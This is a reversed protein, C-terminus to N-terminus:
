KKFVYVAGANSASNDGSATAGTTITTQNSDEGASGVVITDGSIAVASGFNDDIEVNPAKLYADHAWQEGTRKFIYTAGSDIADNNSSASTGNTITTQNSDEYPAGVVVTDGFIAVEKGFNDSPDANPAKLYAEYAWVSGTRKFVYAAGSNSLSNDASATSGNTITIQSSSENKAGAVITDGYLAVSNGLADLTNANPAKLYAEQAWTIGSRKFVYVAGSFSASNNLSASAGNTITIQNSAEAEAGVAITDRSIAVSSGFFDMSGANPAKIYAEQAWLTGTRKFVYVAGAFSLSNDGSGTAGNTISTQNSQEQHAGVVVTDGSIAVSNGFYDMPNANPAKIYAEQAWLTGTRKFVYVAGSSMSLNNASATTGNTITTQNSSEGFAGVVITDGAIAVASGFLDSADANPAKLYAEQVWSVGSRKFVYAAGASLNSNDSSATTGNTITTQSSNENRAGVVLTDGDLAISGGLVLGGFGDGAEANAAKIYAQQAYNPTQDLKYIYAAGSSPASNDSSSTTGNTITTQNSSENHASIVATAGSIAVALGFNDSGDANSAKIYAEQVWSLGTRRFVYVAGSIGKSNDSSATAGNTITTQNSSESHAGVIIVDEFVGVSYGFSDGTGSNPAKLYAEQTWNTGARKFVYAAGSSAASNDASATTGNTITTQNSDESHAGVVITDNSINVSFGFNDSSQSNPAKLYAEQAWSGGTRKFVYAAGSSAASNDASATTGNTITTQSSGENNAGVVVTDRSIAVSRGFADGLQANPAKLYAEQAWSVGARKFVYAAGSSSASNDASATTGNTITTQSSDEGTAGVIVTDGSIAVSIGFVDGSGVNPAKIYAEQSWTTGTRKFIYAAGSDALSNDSSATAGNTITTQNSDEGYAGVVITDKDIAVRSFYDFTETNPSKIYAEQVWIDGTRKFVYVAGANIASNNSSATTGNTITTQNSAEGHSAVVVTDGSIAVATGFNDWDNANPAKLYAQQKWGQPIVSWGNGQVVSANGANDTARVEAKYTQGEVLALGTFGYGLIATGVHTWPTVAADGSDVIRVEYSALGSLSETAPSWALWSSYSTSVIQDGDEISAIVPATIDPIWGNGVIASSINGVGDVVRVTPYYTVGESLSLSSVQYSTVNGIDTWGLVQIGGSTTGIAIQYKSVGSGGVDSGASWGLMPSQSISDFYTGDTISGALTPAENDTVAPDNPSQPAGSDNEAEVDKNNLDSISLSLTCATNFLFVLLINVSKRLLLRLSVM